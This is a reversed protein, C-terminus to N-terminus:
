VCGDLEGIFGMISAFFPLAAAVFLLLGTIATRSVFM